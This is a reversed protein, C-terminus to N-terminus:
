YARAFGRNSTAENYAQGYLHGNITMAYAYTFFAGIFCVVAGLGGLISSLIAGLLVMLYAGPAARVLGFVEGFRFAAGLDDKALMNAYAAPMLVAMLLSYLIMFGTICIMMLGYLANPAAQSTGNEMMSSVIIVPVIFVFVPIAYVLGVLIAKLGDVFQRGFDLEPLPTPDKRIVRRTIDLSWGTLFIQGVIPIISILAPVGIKRAWDPDDFAFTFAKGFDM